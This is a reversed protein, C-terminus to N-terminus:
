GPSSTSRGEVQARDMLPLGNNVPGGVGHLLSYGPIQEMTPYGCVAYSALKGGMTAGEFSGINIGTYVWDGAM